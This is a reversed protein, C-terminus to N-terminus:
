MEAFLLTDITENQREQSEELESLRKEISNDQEDAELSYVREIHTDYEKYSVKLHYGEKDRPIEGDVIKKYGLQELLEERPNIIYKGDLEIRSPTYEVFGTEKIFKGYQM